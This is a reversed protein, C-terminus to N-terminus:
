RWTKTTAYGVGITAGVGLIFWVTNQWFNDDSLSEVRDALDENRKQYGDIRTQMIDMQEKSAKNINDLIEVHDKLYKQEIDMKRLRNAEDPILLVGDVPAQEGKRLPYANQAVSNSTVTLTILLSILIKKM